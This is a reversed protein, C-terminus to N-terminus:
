GREVAERDELGFACTDDRGMMALIGSLEAAATQDSRPSDCAVGVAVVAEKM